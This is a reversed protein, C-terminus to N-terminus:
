FQCAEHKQCEEQCEEASDTKFEPVPRIISGAPINTNNEGCSKLAAMTTSTTTPESGNGSKSIAVSIVIISLVIGVSGFMILVKRQKLLEQLWFQSYRM